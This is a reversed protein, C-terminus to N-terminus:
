FLGITFHIEKEYISRNKGALHLASAIQDAAVTDVNELNKAFVNDLVRSGKRRPVEILRAFDTFHTGFGARRQM